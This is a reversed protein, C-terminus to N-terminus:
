IGKSLLCFLCCKSLLIIQMTFLSFLNHCNCFSLRKKNFLYLGLTCTISQIRSKSEGIELPEETLTVSTVLNRSLLIGNRRLDYHMFVGNLQFTQSWDLMVVGSEFLLSVNGIM